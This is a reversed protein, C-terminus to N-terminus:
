KHMEETSAGFASAPRLHEMCRSRQAWASVGEWSWPGSQLCRPFNACGKREVCWCGSVFPLRSPSTEDRAGHGQVTLLIRTETGVSTKHSSCPLSAGASSVAMAGRPPREGGLGWALLEVRRGRPPQVSACGKAHGCCPERGCPAGVAASRGASRLCLIVRSTGLGPEVRAGQAAGVERCQLFASWSGVAGVPSRM